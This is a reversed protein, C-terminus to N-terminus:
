VLEVETYAKIYTLEGNPLMVKVYMGDYNIVTVSTNKTVMQAEPPPIGDELLRVTDGYKFRAIMM